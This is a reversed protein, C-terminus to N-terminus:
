KIDRNIRIHDVRIRYIFCIFSPLCSLTPSRMYEYLVLLRVEDALQTSELDVQAFQVRKFVEELADCHKQELRIGKLCLGEHRPGSLDRILQVRVCHWSVCTSRRTHETISSQDRFARLTKNVCPGGTQTLVRWTRM